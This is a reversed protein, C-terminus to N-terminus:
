TATEKTCTLAPDVAEDSPAPAVPEPAAPTVPAAPTPTSPALTEGDPETAASEPATSPAGAADDPAATAEAAEAEAQERAALDERIKWDPGTVLPDLPQDAHIRDWVQQAYENAPVVRNGDAAAGFPMTILTIQDSSISALSSALGLMNPLSGVYTGTTLTQLSVDLVGYLKIPDSLLRSRLAEQIIAMVIEQQRGIRSIDSGDGIKRVRALGLAQEGNLLRCGADLTLGSLEDDIDIPNYVAIGGLADVVAMFGVFDVVVFDDVYIGTLEEVARITCAAAAGVDGSQGGIQFASNFMVGSQPSTQTGDPLTCSPIDVLTDRPISVVDVHKRDASIHILMTTDSRMGSTTGDAGAGDVDNAGSRSDSGILVLNLPRGSASDVPQPAQTPRDDHALYEGIDHQEINTQFRHYTLAAGSAAFALLFVVTVAIGHFVRRRLRIGTGHRPNRRVSRVRTRALDLDTRGDM